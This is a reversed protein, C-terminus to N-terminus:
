TPLAQEGRRYADKFRDLGHSGGNVAKRATKLDDQALATRITAEKNKLFQALILGALTPDNAKDPDAVLNAGVQGGVRTYNDRGTLQVYGRGKFRPGDGPQTNGLRTGIPTGADYLDFPAVNTNFKSRGESIPVFGETEARITALAMLAMSRDPLGRSRLGAVVFPLNRTINALPTAPFMRKVADPTIRDLIDGAPALALAGAAAAGPPSVGAPAAAARLFNRSVFGDALGDGLLDVQAWDGQRALVFVQTGPLLTRLVASEITADARLNLGSRAIVVHAEGPAAAIVV